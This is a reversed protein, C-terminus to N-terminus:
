LEQTKVLSENASCCDHEADEGAEIGCRVFLTYIIEEDYVKRKEERTTCFGRMEGREGEEEGYLKRCGAQASPALGGEVSIAIVSASVM